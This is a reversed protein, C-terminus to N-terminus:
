RAVLPNAAFGDAVVAREFSVGRANSAAFPVEVVLCKSELLFDIPAIRVLFELIEKRVYQILPKRSDPAKALFDLNLVTKHM